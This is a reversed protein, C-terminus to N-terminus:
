VFLYQSFKSFWFDNEIHWKNLDVFRQIMFISNVSCKGLFRHCFRRFRLSSLIEQKGRNLVNYQIQLKNFTFEYKMVIIKLINQIHYPIVCM